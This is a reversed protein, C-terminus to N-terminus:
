FNSVIKPKGLVTIVGSIDCENNPSTPDPDFADVILTRSGDSAQSIPLSASQTVANKSHGEIEMKTASSELGKQYVRIIGSNTPSLNDVSSIKFQIGTIIYDFPLPREIILRDEKSVGSKIEKGQPLSIPSDEPDFRIVQKGPRNIPRRASRVHHPNSGDTDSLYRGNAFYDDVNVALGDRGYWEFEYKEFPDDPDPDPDTDTVVARLVEVNVETQILVDEEPLLGGGGSVVEKVIPAGVAQKNVVPRIAVSFRSPTGSSIHKRNTRMYVSEIDGSDPDTFPNNLESLDIKSSYIVELEHASPWGNTEIIFGQADSSLEMTGDENIDELRNEFNGSSTTNSSGGQNLAQLSVQYTEELPIRRAIGPNKVFEDNLMFVEVEDTVIDRITFIYQKVNRDIIRMPNSNSVTDGSVTSEELTLTNGSREIIKYSNNSSTFYLNKGVVDGTLNIPDGEYTNSGLTVSTGSITGQLNNWNWRFTVLSYHEDKDKTSNISSVRINSPSTLAGDSIILNRGGPNDASGVDVYFNAASTGELNTSKEFGELMSIGKPAVVGEGDTSATIKNFTLETSFEIDQNFANDGTSPRDRYLVKKDSILSESLLMRSEERMDAIRFTGSEIIPYDTPGVFTGASDWLVGLLIQTDELGDKFATLTGTIPELSLGVSDSFVTKRNLSQSGLADFVFANLAKVPDSGVEKYTLVIGYGVNTNTKALNDTSVSPSVRIYDGSETLANGSAISLTDNNSILSLAFEPGLVNNHVSLNLGTINALQEIRKKLNSFATSQVNDVVKEFNVQSGNPSKIRKM